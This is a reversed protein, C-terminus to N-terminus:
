SDFAQFSSLQRITIKIKSKRVSNIQKSGDLIIKAILEPIAAASTKSISNFPNEHM